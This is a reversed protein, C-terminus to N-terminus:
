AASGVAFLRTGSPENDTPFDIAERYEELETKYAAILDRNEPSKRDGVLM